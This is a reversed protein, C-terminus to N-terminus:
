NLHKGTEQAVIRDIASWPHIASSMSAASAVDSFRWSL